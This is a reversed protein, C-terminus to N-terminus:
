IGRNATRNKTKSYGNALTGDRVACRYIVQAFRAEAPCLSIAAGRYIGGVLCESQYDEFGFIKDETIAANGVVLADDAGRIRHIDVDNPGVSGKRIGLRCGSSTCLALRRGVSGASEDVLATCRAELKM